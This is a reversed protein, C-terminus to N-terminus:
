SETILDWMMATLPHVNTMEISIVSNKNWISHSRQSCSSRTGSCGRPARPCGRGWGPATGRSRRGEPGGARCCARTHTRGWCSPWPSSSMVDDDEVLPHKLNDPFWDLIASWIEEVKNLVEAKVPALIHLQEPEVRLEGAAGLRLLLLHHPARGAGPELVVYLERVVLGLGPMEVERDSDPILEINTCHVCM